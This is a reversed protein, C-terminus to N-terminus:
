AFQANDLTQSSLGSWCVRLFYSTQQWPRGRQADETEQTTSGEAKEKQLMEVKSRVPDRWM